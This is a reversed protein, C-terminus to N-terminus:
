DGSRELLLRIATDFCDGIGRNDDRSFCELIISTLVCDVAFLTIVSFDGSHETFLADVQIM